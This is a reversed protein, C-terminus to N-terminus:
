PNMRITDKNKGRETPRRRRSSARRVIASQSVRSGPAHTGFDERVHQVQHPPLIKLDVADEDDAIPVHDQVGIMERFRGIGFM